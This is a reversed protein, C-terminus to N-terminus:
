QVPVGRQHFRCPSRLHRACIRHSAAWRLSPRIEEHAVFCAFTGVELDAAIESVIRKDTSLHSLFVRIRNPPWIDLPDDREVVHPTPGPAPGVSTRGDPTLEDNPGVAIGARELATRLVRGVSLPPEGAQRPYHELVQRTLDLLARQKVADGWDVAAIRNAAAQRRVGQKPPAEVDESLGHIDFLTEIECVTFPVWGGMADALARRLPAPVSTGPTM